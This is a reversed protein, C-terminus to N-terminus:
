LDSKITGPRLTALIRQLDGVLVQLFPRVPTKKHGALFASQGSNNSAGVWNSGEVSGEASRLRPNVKVVRHPQHPSPM